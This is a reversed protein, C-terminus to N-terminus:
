RGWTESILCLVAATGLSATGRPQQERVQKVPEYVAMFIASAPAVGVLNGWVGAYLSRGGGAQPPTLPRSRARGKSQWMAQSCSWLQDGQNAPVPFSPAGLPTDRGGRHMRVCVRGEQSVQLLARIGGGSRMAQLRTKVTDIPYLAAPPSIPCAPCGTPRM